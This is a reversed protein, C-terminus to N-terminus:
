PRAQEDEEPTRQVIARRAAGGATLSQQSPLVRPRELAPQLDTAAPAELPFSSNSRGSQAPGADSHGVAVLSAPPEVQLVTTNCDNGTTDAGGACFQAQVAGSFVIFGTFCIAPYVSM